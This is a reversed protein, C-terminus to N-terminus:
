SDFFPEWNGVDTLHPSFTLIKRNFDFGHLSFAGPVNSIQKLSTFCSFIARLISISNSVQSTSSAIRLNTNTDSKTAIVLIFTFGHM